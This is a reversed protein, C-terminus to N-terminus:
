ESSDSNPGAETEGAAPEGAPPAESEQFEDQKPLVSQLGEETSMGSLIPVSKRFAYLQSNNTGTRQGSAPVM